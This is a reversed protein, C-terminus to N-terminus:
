ILTKVWDKVRTETKDPENVDDVLLGVAEGGQVPVAASSEFRYPFTNYEGVMTTGTDKLAKYIEEVGSCFTSGMSEDGCGFVAAKKGKLDLVRVGDLFDAMDDQVDGSGYTPAGLIILDYDGVTSPSTKAVDYVDTDAAGVAQAILKAVKETTGTSTGYFIGPKM